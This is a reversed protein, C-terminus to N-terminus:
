WYRVLMSRATTFNESPANRDRAYLIKEIRNLRAPCTFGIACTVRYHPFMKKYQNSSDCKCPSTFVIDDIVAIDKYKPQQELRYMSNNFIQKGRIGRDFYFIAKNSGLYNLDSYSMRYCNLQQIAKGPADVIRKLKATESNNEAM